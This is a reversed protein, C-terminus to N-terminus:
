LAAPPAHRQNTCTNSCTQLVDTLRNVLVARHRLPRRPRRAADRAAVAARRLAEAVVEVLVVHYSTPAVGLLGLRTDGVDAVTVLGSASGLRGTRLM